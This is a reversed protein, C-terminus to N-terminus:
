FNFTYGLDLGHLFYTERQFKSVPTRPPDIPVLTLHDSSVNTDIQGTALVVSPMAILTYGVGLQGRGLQYKLKAGAEPVFTFRDQSILGSNTSQAFIGRPAAFEPDPQPPVISTAGAVSSTSRMNGMAVKGLLSLSFRGSAVENMFGLHGGHFENRTGFTDMTTVVTGDPVTNGVIGDVFSTSLMYASDLRLFSYGALIDGRSLGDGLLRLRFSVDASVFDLENVVGITGANIGTGPGVGPITQQVLYINNDNVSPATDFFSVGTTGMGGFNSQDRNGFLGFVRGMLGYNQDNDLWTGVTFRYGVRLSDGVPNGSGGALIDTPLANPGGGLIVPAGTMGKGWWLLTEAEVWTNSTGTCLAIPGCSPAYGSECSMSVTGPMDFSPSRFAVPNYATPQHTGSDAIDSIRSTSEVFGSNAQDGIRGTNSFAGDQGVATASACTGCLSAIILSLTTRNIKM